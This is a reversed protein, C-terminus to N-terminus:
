NAGLIECVGPTPAASKVWVSGTMRKISGGPASGQWVPALEGDPGRLTTNTAGYVVADVPRATSSMGLSTFLGVGVAQVTGLGLDPELDASLAFVPSHNAPSSEIGGVVICGRAPITMPLALRTTMFDGTGAGISYTSLDLAVDAQNAIEIWQLNNTSGTAPNYFVESIVLGTVRVATTIRAGNLSASVEVVAPRRARGTFSVLTAGAPITIEAPVQLASSDSSLLAVTVDTKEAAALVVEFTFDQGVLVTESAPTLASLKSAELLCLSHTDQAPSYYATMNCHEQTETDSGWTLRSGSWNFFGCEYQLGAGPQVQHAPSFRKFEFGPEDPSSYLEKGTTQGPLRESMRYDEGHAHFHGMVAHLKAGEPVPCFHEVRTRQGPALDIRQNVGFLVGLHEVSEETTHFKIDVVEDVSEETTNLWHIQALLQQHPELPLTVGDPLQWDMSKTQAGVVLSWKQWDIGKFCDYVSDAVPESSRYIHVHHSGAPFKVELRDIEVNRANGLKFVHCDQIEGPAQTWRIQKELTTEVVEADVGCGTPVVSLLLVTTALNRM